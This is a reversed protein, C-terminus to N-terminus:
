RGKTGEERKREKKIKVSDRVESLAVKACAEEKRKPSRYRVIEKRIAEVNLCVYM